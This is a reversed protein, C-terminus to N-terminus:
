KRAANNNATQPNSSASPQVAEPSTGQQKVYGALVRVTSVFSQVQQKLEASTVKKMGTPVEFLTSDPSLQLSEAATVIRAGAGSSTMTEIESRLPLGTEQDVYVISDAQATGVKTHTDTSAKFRYKVATRGNVTETGLPEYQAREKLRQIASAPSMLEGFQFGLENPDLEVYQNRAPFILYKLPSKELYIVEGVPDPLKFSVRRETGIKAFSFQMPPINTQPANGTPQITITTTVSYREPEKPELATTSSSPVSANTNAVSAVNSNSNLNATTGTNTCATPVLTAIAIVAPLIGGLLKKFIQAFSM